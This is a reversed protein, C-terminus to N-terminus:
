LLEGLRKAIGTINRHCLAHDGRTRDSLEDHLEPNPEPSSVKVPLFTAQRSFSSGPVVIPEARFSTRLDFYNNLGSIFM